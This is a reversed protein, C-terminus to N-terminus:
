GFNQVFCKVTLRRLFKDFFLIKIVNFLNKFKRNKTGFNNVTDSPLTGSLLTEVRKKRACTGIIIKERMKGGGNTRERNDTTKQQVTSCRQKEVM